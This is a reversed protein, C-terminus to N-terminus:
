RNIWRQCTEEWDTNGGEEDDTRMYSEQDTETYADNVDSTTLAVHSTPLKQKQASHRDRQVDPTWDRGPSAASRFLRHQRLEALFEEGHITSTAADGDDKKTAPLETDDGSEVSDDSHLEKVLSTVAGTIYDTAELLDRSVGLCPSTPLAALVGASPRSLSASGVGLGLSGVGATTSGVGAFAQMVDASVAALHATRGGVVYDLAPSRSRSSPTTSRSKLVSMLTDLQSMLQRRSSQLSVMRCELEDRRRRLLRLEDVLHSPTPQSSPPPGLVLQQASQSSPVMQHSPAHDGSSCPSASSQQQLRLWQIERLIARNKAELEAVLQRREDCSLQHKDNSWCGVETQPGNATSLTEVYRAILNHEDDSRLCNARGGPTAPLSPRNNSMETSYLDNDAPCVRSSLTYRTTMSPSVIVSHNDDACCVGGCSTTWTSTPPVCGQRPSQVGM